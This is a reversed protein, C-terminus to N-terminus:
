KRKNTQKINEKNQKFLFSFRLPPSLSPHSYAGFIKTMNDHMGLARARLDVPPGGAGGGVTPGGRTLRPPPGRTGKGALLVPQKKLPTINDSASQGQPTKAKRKKWAYPDYLEIRQQNLFNYPFCFSRSIM